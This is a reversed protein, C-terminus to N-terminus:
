GNPMEMARNIKSLFSYHSHPHSPSLLPKCFCSCEPHVWLCLTAPLQCILLIHHRAFTNKRCLQVIPRQKEQIETSKLTPAVVGYYLSSPAKEKGPRYGQSVTVSTKEKRLACSTHQVSDSVKELFHPSFVEWWQSQWLPKRQRKTLWNSTRSMLTTEGLEHHKLEYMQQPRLMAPRQTDALAEKQSTQTSPAPSCETNLACGWTGARHEKCDSSVPAQTKEM